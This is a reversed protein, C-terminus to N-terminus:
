EAKEAFTEVDVSFACETFRVYRGNDLAIIGIFPYVQDDRVVTGGMKADDAFVCSVRKNLLSSQIPFNNLLIM